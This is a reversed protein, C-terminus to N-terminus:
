HRWLGLNEEIENHIFVRAKKNWQKNLKYQSISLWKIKTFFFRILCVVFCKLHKRRYNKHLYQIWTWIISYDFVNELLETLPIVTYVTNRCLWGVLSTRYPSTLVCPLHQFRCILGQLWSSELVSVKSRDEWSKMVVTMSIRPNSWSSM